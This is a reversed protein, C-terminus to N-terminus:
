YAPMKVFVGLSAYELPVLDALINLFIRFSLELFCSANQPFNQLFIFRIFDIRCDNNKAFDRSTVYM